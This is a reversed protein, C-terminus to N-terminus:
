NNRIHLSGTKVSDRRSFMALAFCLSRGGIFRIYNNDTFKRYGYSHMTLCRANVLGAGRAQSGFLIGIPQPRERKPM